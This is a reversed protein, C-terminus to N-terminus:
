HLTISLTGPSRLLFAPGNGVNQASILMLADALCFGGPHGAPQKIM